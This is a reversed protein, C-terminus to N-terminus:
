RLLRRREEYEEASVEGSAFREDLIRRASAQSSSDHPESVSRVLWVVGLILLLWFSLMFLWGFWGFGYGMM